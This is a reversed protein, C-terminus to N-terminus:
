VDLTGILSVQIRSLGAKESEVQPAASWRWSYSKMQAILAPDIGGYIAAGLNVIGAGGKSVHWSALFQAMDQDNLLYTLQLQADFPQSGYLRTSSAGSVSSFRKVAYEGATFRRSQPCVNPFDTAM